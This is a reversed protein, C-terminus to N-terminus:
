KGVRELDVVLPLFLAAVLFTIVAALGGVVILNLMLTRSRKRAVLATTWMAAVVVGPLVYWFDSAVNAVAFLTRTTVPLSAVGMEKFTQEFKPVIFVLIYFLIALALGVVFPVSRMFFTPSENAQQVDSM